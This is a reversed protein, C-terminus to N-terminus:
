LAAGLLWADLVARLTDPTLGSQSYNTQHPRAPASATTPQSSPTSSMSVTSSQADSQWSSPAIGDACAPQVRHRSHGSPYVAVSSLLAPSLYIGAATNCHWELWPHANVKNTQSQVRTAPTSLPRQQLQEEFNRRDVRDLVEHLLLGNLLQLVGGEM